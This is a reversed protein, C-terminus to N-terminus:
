PVREPNEAAKFMLEEAEGSGFIVDILDAFRAGIFTWAMTEDPEVPLPMLNRWRAPSMELQLAWLCGAIVSIVQPSLIDDLLGTTRALHITDGILMEPLPSETAAEDGEIQLLGDKILDFIRAQFFTICTLIGGVLDANSPQRERMIRGLICRYQEAEAPCSMRFSMIVQLAEGIDGPIAIEPFGPSAADPNVLAAIRKGHRTIYVPGSGTEVKNLLGPFISRAERVGVEVDKHADGISESMGPTYGYSRRERTCLGPLTYM